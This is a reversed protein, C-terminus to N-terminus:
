NGAWVWSSVPSGAGRKRAFVMLPSCNLLSDTFPLTTRNSNQVVQHLYQSSSASSTSSMACSNLTCSDQDNEGDVYQFGILPDLLVQGVMRARDGDHKCFVCIKGGHVVRLDIRNVHHYVAVAVDGGFLTAGGSLVRVGVSHEAADAQFRLCHAGGVLSAESESTRWRMLRIERRRRSRRICDSWGASGCHRDATARLVWANSWFLRQVPREFMIVRRTVMSLIIGM